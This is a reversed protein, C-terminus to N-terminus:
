TFFGLDGNEKVIRSALSKFNGSALASRILQKNKLPAKLAKSVLASEPDIVSVSLNRYSGFPNFQSGNPIYILDSDEDYILQHKPLIKKLEEKVFYDCRLQADLDGTQALVLEYTLEPQALLSTQGLVKIEAKAILRAGSDKRDANEDEIRRDLDTFVKELVTKM